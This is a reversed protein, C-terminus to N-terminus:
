IGGWHSNGWFEIVRMGMLRNQNGAYWKNSSVHTLTQRDEVM